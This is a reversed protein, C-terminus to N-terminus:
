ANKVAKDGGWLTMDGDNIFNIVETIEDNDFSTILDEYIVPLGNIHLNALNKKFNELSSDISSSKKKKEKELEEDIASAQLRLMYEVTKKGSQVIIELKISNDFSCLHSRKVTGENIKRTFYKKEESM